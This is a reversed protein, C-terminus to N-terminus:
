HMSNIPESVPLTDAGYCIETIGFSITHIVLPPVDKHPTFRKFFPWNFLVSFILTTTTTTTTTATTYHYHYHHLPLPLLMKKRVTHCFLLSFSACVTCVKIADTAICDVLLQAHRTREAISCVCCVCVCVSIIRCSM